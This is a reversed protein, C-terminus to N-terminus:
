TTDASPFRNRVRAVVLPRNDRRRLLDLGRFAPQVDVPDFHADIRAGFPLLDEVLRPPDIAVVEVGRVHVADVPLLLVLLVRREQRVHRRSGVEIAHRLPHRALQRHSVVVDAAAVREDLRLRNGAAQETGVLNGVAPITELLDVAAEVPIRLQARREGLWPTM